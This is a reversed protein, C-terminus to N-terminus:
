GPPTRRLRVVFSRLTPHDKLRGKNRGEVRLNKMRGKAPKWFSLPSLTDHQLAAFCRLTTLPVIEGTMGGNKTM